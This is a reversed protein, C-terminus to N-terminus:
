AVKKKNVFDVVVVNSYDNDDVESAYGIEMLYQGVIVDIDLHSYRGTIGKTRYKVQKLIAEYEPCWKDIGYTALIAKIMALKNGPKFSMIIRM